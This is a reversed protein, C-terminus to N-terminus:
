VMGCRRCSTESTWIALTTMRPWRRRHENQARAAAPRPPPRHHRCPGSRGSTTKRCGGWRVVAVGETRRRHRRAAKRSLVASGRSHVLVGDLHQRRPRRGARIWARYSRSTPTTRGVLTRASPWSTVSASSTRRTSRKTTTIAAAHHSRGHTRTRVLPPYRRYTTSSPRAHIKPPSQHQHQQYNEETEGCEGCPYARLARAGEPLQAHAPLVLHGDSAVQGREASDPEGARLLSYSERVAGVERVVRWAM